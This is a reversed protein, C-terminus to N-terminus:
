LAGTIMQWWTLITNGIGTTMFSAVIGEVFAIFLSSRSVILRAFIAGAALWVARQGFWIWGRIFSAIWRPQRSLHRDPDVGFYILASVTILLTLIGTLFPEPAARWQFGTQAARWFQPLLTGQLVGLSAIAIGAAILLGAPAVGLWRLWRRSGSGAGGEGQMLIREGGAIVLLLALVIPIWQIIDGAPNALLGQVFSLAFMAQWTVVAAYGLAVGVLIHQGLRALWHDGFIASFILLGVVIGVWTGLLVALDAQGLLSNM